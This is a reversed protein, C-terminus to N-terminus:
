LFILAVCPLFSGSYELGYLQLAVQLNEVSNDSQRAHNTRRIQEIHDQAEQQTAPYEM